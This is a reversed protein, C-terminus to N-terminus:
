KINSAIEIIKSFNKYDLSAKGPLLGDAGIELFSQANDKNASGGYIIRVSSTITQGFMDTLIKKIYIKMEEFDHPTADHRNETSSLAWVPEYAIVIQKIQNKPIGSLCMSLQERVKALYFGDHSRVTEGVCLIPTLKAKLVAILKKNIIENTEGMARRESHGVIVYKIGADSLMKASIEGTFAGNPEFFVNQAGISIKKNKLQKIYTFYVSPVCVVIETNKINKTAQSINKFLIAAEKQSQPNMKWNGVILKKM